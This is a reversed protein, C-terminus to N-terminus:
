DYYEHFNIKKVLKLGYERAMSILAEFPVLYEPVYAIKNSSMKKGIADSLYFFYEHGFPGESKKFHDKQFVISYYDNGISLNDESKAERIRYVVRDSDITTGIFRGGIELRSTINKLFGRLTQESRFMYHIAFQISVADFMIKEHIRM